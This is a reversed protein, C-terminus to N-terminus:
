HFLRPRRPRRETAAILAQLDEPSWVPRFRPKPPLPKLSRPLLGLTAYTKTESQHIERNLTWRKLAQAYKRARNKVNERIIADRVHPPVQKSIAGAAELREWQLQLLLRQAARVAVFTRIASQLRGVQRSRVKAKWLVILRTLVERSLHNEIIKAIIEAKRLKLAARCRKLYPRLRELTKFARKERKLKVSRCFKGCTRALGLLWLLLGKSRCHLAKRTDMKRRWRGLVGLAAIGGVWMVKGKAVEEANRRWEFRRTKGQLEEERRRQKQVHLENRATRILASRTVEKLAQAKAAAARATPTYTRAKSINSRIRQSVQLIEDPSLARISPKYAALKERVTIPPFRPPSERPLLPSLRM